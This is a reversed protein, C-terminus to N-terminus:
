CCKKSKSDNQKEENKNLEIKLKKSINNEKLYNEMYIYKAIESFIDDVNYGTKASAENFYQLDHQKFFQEGDERKIIKEENLDYKNGVLFIPIPKESYNKIDKIWENLDVFSKQDNISYILLALSTNRYFGQILSRYMEQGCTDWIQLKIKKGNIKYYMLLFEFGITTQYGEKFTNLVAKKLLCSKGVGSNGVIIIKFNIFDDKSSIQKLDLRRIEM